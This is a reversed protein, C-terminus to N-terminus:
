EGKKLVYALVLLAAIAIALHAAAALGVSLPFAARRQPRARRLAAIERRLEDDAIPAADRPDADAEIAADREPEAAIGAEAAVAPGPVAERGGVTESDVASM